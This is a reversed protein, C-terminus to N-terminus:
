GAKLAAQIKANIQKTVKTLGMQVTESGLFIVPIEQQVVNVVDDFSVVDPAPQPTTIKLIEKMVSRHLPGLSPQLYTANAAAVNSPLIGGAGLIKQANETGEWFAYRVAEEKVKSAPNVGTLNFNSSSATKGTKPAYPITAIDFNIKAQQVQPIEWNGVTAIAIKGTLFLSTGNESSLDAATPSVKDKRVLDVLYQIAEVAPSKDLECVRYSKAPDLFGGGNALVFNFWGTEWNTDVFFGYVSPRPGSSRQTLKEGYEVVKNWGWGTGLDAPPTLGSGKLLDQNYITMTLTGGFPIGIVKGNYTAAHQSPRATAEFDAKAAKDRALYSRLDLLVNRYAQSPAMRAETRYVDPGTGGAFSVLLKTFYDPPIQLKIKYTPHQLVFQRALNEFITEFVVAWDWVEITVAAKSGQIVTSPVPTSGAAARAATTSAARNSVPATTGSCAALISVAAGSAGTALFCRRSLHVPMSM